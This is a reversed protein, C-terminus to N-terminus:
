YNFKVQLLDQVKELELKLNKNKDEMLELQEEQEMRQMVLNEQEARSEEVEEELKKLQGALDDCRASFILLLSFPLKPRQIM